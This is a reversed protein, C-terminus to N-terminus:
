RKLSVIFRSGSGFSSEVTIQGGHQEIVAKSVSLGLGIGRFLHGGINEMHFYRDFIHALADSPIGVGHDEITVVIHIDDCTVATVVDGGDPSFKIANDLISIFARELSKPDGPILPLGPALTLRLGIRNDAARSRLQEVARTIVSAVDTPQFGPMIMELEQMFLIDNTLAIIDQLNRAVTDLATNLADGRLMGMRIVQVFGNAAMLPTRLEHAAITLFESRANEQEALRQYAVALEQAKLRLDDIAMQDNERLRRSVERVMAISVSSSRELFKSFSDKQIELVTTPCTTTVTAARPANHIIAMEGFFGGRSLHNMVRTESENLVKTVEVEGELLIYFTTESSGEHCLTTGPPYAIVKGSAIMEVAETEQMGPFAQRLIAATSFESNM